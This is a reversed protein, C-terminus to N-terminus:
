VPSPHYKWEYTTVSGFSQFNLSELIPRSQPSATVYLYTYGRGMAVQARHAVMARYLGKGRWEPLTGGGWLGVFDHDPLLEARSSAVPIGGATVVVIESRSPSRQMQARLSRRLQPHERTFVQDHIDILQDIGDPDNARVLEVGPPLDVSQYVDAVRAIMLQSTGAERFGAAVLRSSLDQPLDSDYVKWVFDQEAAAFYEIQRKIESDANHEDLHSWSIESWGLDGIASHRVARTTREFHNVTDDAVGQRVQEDFLRLILKWDDIPV